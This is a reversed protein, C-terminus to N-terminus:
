LYKILLWSGTREQCTDFLGQLGGDVFQWEGTQDNQCISCIKSNPYGDKDAYPNELCVGLSDMLSKGSETATNCDWAQDLSGIYNRYVRESQIYDVVEAWQEETLDKVFGIISCKGVNIDKIPNEELGEDLVFAIDEETSWTYDNDHTNDPYRIFSFRGNSTEFEVKM